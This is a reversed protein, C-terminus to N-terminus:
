RENYGLRKISDEWEKKVAKLGVTLALLEQFEIIFLEEETEADYVVIQHELSEWDWVVDHTKFDLGSDIRVKGTKIEM